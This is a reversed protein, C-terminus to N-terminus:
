RHRRQHHFQFRQGKIISKRCYSLPARRLHSLTFCSMDRTRQWPSDSFDSTKKNLKQLDSPSEDISNWWHFNYFESSSHPYHLSSQASETDCHFLSRFSASLCWVAQDVVLRHLASITRTSNLTGSKRYLGRPMIQSGSSIWTHAPNKKERKKKRELSLLLDKINSLVFLTYGDPEEGKAEDDQWFVSEEPASGLM